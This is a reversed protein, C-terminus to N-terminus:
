MACARPKKRSEHVVRIRDVGQHRQTALESRGLLGAHLLKPQRVDSQEGFREAIRVEPNGAHVDGARVAFSRRSRHEFRDQAGGAQAGTQVGGGVELADVLANADIALVDRIFREGRGPRANMQRDFAQEGLALQLSMRGIELADGREGEHGESFRTYLKRDVFHAEAAPEIRGVNDLGLDGDDGRDIEIM